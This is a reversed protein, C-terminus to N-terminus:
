RATGTMVTILYRDAAMIMSVNPNRGGAMVAMSFGGLCWPSAALPDISSCYRRTRGTRQSDLRSVLGKLVSCDCDGTMVLKSLLLTWRM